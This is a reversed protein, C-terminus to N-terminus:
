HLSKTAWTCFRRSAPCPVTAAWGGSLPVFLPLHPRAPGPEPSVWFFSFWLFMLGPSALAASSVCDGSLAGDWTYLHPSGRAEGEWGGAPSGKPQAWLHLLQPWPPM